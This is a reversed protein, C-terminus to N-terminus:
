NPFHLEMHCNACLLICKVAETNMDEERMNGLSRIDMKKSKDSPNKHHFHIAARCKSYGCTSCKGGMREILLNKRSRGRANQRNTSQKNVCKKCVALRENERNRKYFMEPPLLLNCTTCNKSAKSDVITKTKKPYIRNNTKAACSISCYNNPCRKIASPKKDFEKECNKCNVKM